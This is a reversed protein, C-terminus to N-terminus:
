AYPRALLLFEIAYQRELHFWVSAQECVLSVSTTRGMGEYRELEDLNQFTKALILGPKEAVFITPMARGKCTPKKMAPATANASLLGSVHASRSTDRKHPRDSLHGWTGGGQYWEDHDEEPEGVDLCHDVAQSGTNEFYEM